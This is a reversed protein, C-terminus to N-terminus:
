DEGTLDVSLPEVKVKPQSKGNSAPMPERAVVEETKDSDCPIIGLSQLGSKKMYRFIFRVYPENFSKEVWDTGGVITPGPPKLVKEAEFGVMTEVDRGKVDKEYVKGEGGFDLKVLSVPPAAVVKATCRMVEVMITGIGKVRETDMTGEDREEQLTVAQFRFKQFTNGSYIGTNNVGGMYYGWAQGDITPLYAITNPIDKTNGPLVSCSIWFHAGPVSEIYVTKESTTSSPSPSPYEPLPSSAYTHIHVSVGRLSPM